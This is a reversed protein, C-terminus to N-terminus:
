IQLKLNCTNHAAERFKGTIHCHEWVRDDRTELIEIEKVIKLLSTVLSKREDSENKIEKNIVEKKSELSKVKDKDNKEKLVEIEEVLTQVIAKNDDLKKEIKKIKGNVFDKRIELCKVEEKDVLFKEKCIWCVEAEEFQRKYEESVIRKVKIALVENIHVLEEDIRRVFEQTANEGRYLFPGM